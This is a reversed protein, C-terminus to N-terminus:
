HKHNATNGGTDIIKGAGLIDGSVRLGGNISVEGNLAIHTANLTISHDTVLLSSGAVNLSVTGSPLEISYSRAQWDYVLSGGDYFRWVEM